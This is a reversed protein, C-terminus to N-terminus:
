PSACLTGPPAEAQQRLQYNAIAQRLTRIALDCCHRKEKPVGGLAASVAGPSMALADEVSKQRVLETLVSMSAVCTICGATKFRIEVIRGEAVKIAVRMRIFWPNDCETGVGDPSELDGCNRPHLFHEIVRSM